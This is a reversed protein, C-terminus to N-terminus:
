HPFRPVRDRQQEPPPDVVGAAHDDAVMIFRITLWAAVCIIVLASVKCFVM